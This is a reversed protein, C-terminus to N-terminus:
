FYWGSPIWPGPLTMGSVFLSGGPKVTLRAALAVRVAWDQAATLCWQEVKHEGAGALMRWLVATATNTDTAGLAMLRGDRHIGFGRRPGDEVIDLVGGGDLIFASDDRRSRGLTQEDIAGILDM